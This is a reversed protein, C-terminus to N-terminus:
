REVELAKPPGFILAAAFAQRASQRHHLATGLVSGRGSRTQGKARAPAIRTEGLQEYRRIAREVGRLTGSTEAAIVPAVEVPPPRLSPASPRLAPRIQPPKSHGPMPAIVPPVATEEGLM